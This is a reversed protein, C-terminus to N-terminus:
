RPEGRASGGQGKVLTQLNTRMMEQYTRYGDVAPNGEPDLTLVTAGTQRHLAQVAQDPFEPECYLTRVRYKRVADIAERYKDPTVEGGPAMEIDTLRVLITLGYRAAILDFANHFTILQKQPVAALQERYEGDLRALEASLAAAATKVAPATSPSSSNSNTPLAPSLNNRLFQTSGSITTRRRRESGRELRRPYRRIPHRPACRLRFGGSREAWDDLGMGVVVLLRAHSIERM